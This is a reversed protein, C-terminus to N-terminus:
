LYFSIKQSNKDLQELIGTYDRRVPIIEKKSELISNVRRLDIKM